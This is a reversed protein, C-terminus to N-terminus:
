KIVILPSPKVMIYVGIADRLANRFTVNIDVDSTIKASDRKKKSEKTNEMRKNNNQVGKQHKARSEDEAKRKLRDLQKMAEELNSENKELQTTIKQKVEESDIGSMIEKLGAILGLLGTIRREMYNPPFSALDVLKIFIKPDSTLGTLLNKNAKLLASQIKDITPQPKVLQSTGTPPRPHPKLLRVDSVTKAVMKTAPTAALVAGSVLNLIFILIRM